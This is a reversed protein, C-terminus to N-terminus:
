RENRHLASMRESIHGDLEMKSLLVQIHDTSFPAAAILEDRTRPAALLDWLVQEDDTLTAAMESVRSPRELSLAALIDDASTVPAAGLRLFQHPGRGTEAFISHPVCLVDRDYDGALRATILTGSKEKAEIVLVAESMGAMLRNRKPFTWPAAQQRPEYESVLAGGHEVIRRALSAHSAPYLVSPDLGSGPIAVTPLKARLAAAHARGDIGLALGSVICVPTGALGEILHDVVAKGYQTAARSGVVALYRYTQPDPLTGCHYLQAPPDHIEQLLPPFDKRALQEIRMTM